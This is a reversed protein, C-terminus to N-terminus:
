PEGRQFTIETALGIASFRIAVSRAVSPKKLDLCHPGPELFYVYYKQNRDALQNIDPRGFLDAFDNASVGKLEERLAKFPESQALRQGRCGGRDGRWRPLDFGKLDPQKTCSFLLFSLGLLCFLRVM